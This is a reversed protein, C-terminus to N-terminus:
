QDGLGYTGSMGSDLVARGAMGFLRPQEAVQGGRQGFGVGPGAIEGLEGFGDVQAPPCGPPCGHTLWMVAGDAQLQPLRQQGQVLPRAVASEQVLSPGDETRGGCGSRLRGTQPDGRIPTGGLGSM